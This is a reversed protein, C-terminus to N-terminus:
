PSLTTAAAATTATTAALAAAACGYGGGAAAAAAVATKQYVNRVRAPSFVSKRPPPIRLVNELSFIAASTVKVVAATTDTNLTDTSNM